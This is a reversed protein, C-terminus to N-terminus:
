RHGAVRFTEVPIGSWSVPFKTVDFRKFGMVKLFEIVFFTNLRWWQNWDEHGAAAAPNPQLKLLPWGSNELAHEVIDVVVCTKTTIRACNQMIKLPDRNHLLMNSMLSIDFSGLDLKNIDYAGSYVVKATSKNKEHAFWYSNTLPKWGREVASQWDTKMAHYPVVDYQHNAPLEVSVISGGRREMDYTLIGSAPGIELVRAGKFNIGGLINDLSPRLDWNGGDFGLVTGHGQIDMTHYFQCEEFKLGLRPKAYPSTENDITM